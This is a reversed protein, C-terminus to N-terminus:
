RLHMSHNQKELYFIIGASDKAGIKFATQNPLISVTEFVDFPAVGLQENMYSDYQLEDFFNSNDINCLNKIRNYDKQELLTVVSKIAYQPTSLEYETLMNWLIVLTVSFAIGLTIVISIIVYHFKSKKIGYVM